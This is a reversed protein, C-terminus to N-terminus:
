SSIWSYGQAAASGILWIKGLDDVYIPPTQAGAALVFGNPVSVASSGVMITGTNGANARVVVNKSVQGGPTLQTATLGITGDGAAFTSVAEKGVQVVSM